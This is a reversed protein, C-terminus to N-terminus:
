VRTVRVSSLVTETRGSPPNKVDLRMYKHYLVTLMDMVSMGGGIHGSGAWYTTDLCLRRLEHAKKELALWEQKSLPM